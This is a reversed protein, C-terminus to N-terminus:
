SPRMASSFSVTQPTRGARRAAVAGDVMVSVTAVLHGCRDVLACAPSAQAAQPPQQPKRDSGHDHERDCASASTTNVASSGPWSDSDHARATSTAAAIASMLATSHGSTM